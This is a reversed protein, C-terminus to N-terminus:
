APFQYPFGAFGVMQSSFQNWLLMSYCPPYHQWELMADSGDSKLGSGMKSLWAQIQQAQPINGTLVNVTGCTPRSFTQQPVKKGLLDIMGSLMLPLAPCKTGADSKDNSGISGTPWTYSTWLNQNPWKLDIYAYPVLDLTNAWFQISPAVAALSAMLGQDGPTPPAFAQCYVTSPTSLAGLQWGLYIAMVQAQCAGLSHGTVVVPTGACGAQGLLSNLAAVVTLNGSVPSKGQNLGAQLNAIKVFGSAAGHAINGSMQTMSTTNPQPVSGLAPSLQNNLVKTWEVLSFDNLDQVLQQYKAVPGAFMDTGRINVTFFYPQNTTQDRFSAIYLMNSNDGSVAPGWDLTWYGSLANAAQKQGAQNLDPLAPLANIANYLDIGIKPADGASVYCLSAMALFAESYYPGALAAQVDSISTM